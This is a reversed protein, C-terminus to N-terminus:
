TDGHATTIEGLIRQAARHRDTRDDAARIDLQRDAHEPTHGRGILVGIAQNIECAAQLQAATDPGDPLTLHEDFAFETLTQATLWALDAALDVFTGPAAAYLILTVGV